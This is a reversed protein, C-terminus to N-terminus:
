RGLWFERLIRVGLRALALRAPGEVRFSAETRRGAPFATIEVLSSVFAGWGVLPTIKACMCLDMNCTAEGRVHQVSCLRLLGERRMVVKAKCDLSM